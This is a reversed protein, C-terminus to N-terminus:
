SIFTRTLEPVMLGVTEVIKKWSPLLWIFKQRINNIKKLIKSQDCRNLKSPKDGSHELELFNKKQMYIHM